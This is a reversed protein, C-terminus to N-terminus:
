LLPLIGLGELESWSTLVSERYLIRITRRKLFWMGAYRMNGLTKQEPISKCISSVLRAKISRPHAMIRAMTMKETAQHSTMVFNASYAMAAYGHLALALYIPTYVPFSVRSMDNRSALFYVQLRESSSTVISYDLIRPM